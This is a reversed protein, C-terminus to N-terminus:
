AALAKKNLNFFLYFLLQNVFVVIIHIYYSVIIIIIIIKFHKMIHSCNGANVDIM